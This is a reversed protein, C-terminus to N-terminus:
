EPDLVGVRSRPVIDLNLRTSGITHGPQWWRRIIQGAPVARRDLDGVREARTCAVAVYDPGRCHIHGKVWAGVRDDHIHKDDAAGRGLSCCTFTRAVSSDPVTM